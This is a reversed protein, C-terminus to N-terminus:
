PQLRLFLFILEFGALGPNPKGVLQVTPGEGQKNCGAFGDRGAADTSEGDQGPM